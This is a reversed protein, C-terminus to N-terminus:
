RNPRGYMYAELLCNIKKELSPSVTKSLVFAKLYYDLAKSKKGLALLVDGMHENVVPDHNCKDLALKMYKLSRKPMNRKFLVWGMSDLIFGDDPRTKLAEEIMTQARQLNKGIDAWVYGVFNLMIPDHPHKELIEMAFVLGEKRQGSEELMTALRYGIEKCSEYSIYHKWVDRLIEIAESIRGMDKLISVKLLIVDCGLDGQIPINDLSTLAKDWRHLGAYALAEYYADEDTYSEKTHLLKLAQEYMGEHIELLALSHLVKQSPHIKFLRKLLGIGESYRNQSVYIDTLATIAQKSQPNVKLLELYIAEAGAKDGLAQYVKGLDAYAPSFEPQNEILTELAHKACIFDGDGICAKSLTYLLLNDDTYIDLMKNLVDRSGKFDSVCMKLNALFMGLDKNHPHDQMLREVDHIALMWKKSRAYIKSRLELAEDLYSGQELLKGIFELAKDNDGKAYYIMAQNLWVYPDNIHSYFELAEDLDGRNQAHRAYIMFLYPSKSKLPEEKPTNVALHTCGTIIFASLLCATLKVICPDPRSM